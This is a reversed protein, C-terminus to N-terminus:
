ELTTRTAECKYCVEESGNLLKKLRQTNLYKYDYMFDNSKLKKLDNESLMFYNQLRQYKTTHIRGKIMQDYLSDIDDGITPKTDRKRSYLTNETMNKKEIIEGRKGGIFTFYISSPQSTIGLLNRFHRFWLPFSSVDSDIGVIYHWFSNENTLNREIINISEFTLSWLGPSFPMVAAFFAQKLKEYLEPLVFCIELCCKLGYNNRGSPVGGQWSSNCNCCFFAPSIQSDFYMKRFDIIEKVEFQEDEDIIFRNMYAKVLQNNISKSSDPDEYIIILDRNKKAM